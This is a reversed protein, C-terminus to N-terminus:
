HSRNRKYPQKKNAKNTGQKAHKKVKGHQKKRAFMTLGASRRTAKYARKSARKNSTGKKRGFIPWDQEQLELTSVVSTARVTGPALSLALALLVTGLM